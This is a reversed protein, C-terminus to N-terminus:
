RGRPPGSSTLLRAPSGRCASMPLGNGPLAACRYPAPHVLDEILSNRVGLLVLCRIELSAARPEWFSAEEAATVLIARRFCEDSWHSLLSELRRKVDDAVIERQLKSLALSQLQPSLVADIYGQIVVM